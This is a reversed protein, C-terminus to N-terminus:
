CASIIWRSCIAAYRVPRALARRPRGWIGTSPAPGYCIALVACRRGSRTPQPESSPEVHACTPLSEGVRRSDRRSSASSTALQGFNASNSARRRITPPRSEGANSQIVAVHAAHYSSQLSPRSMPMGGAPWATGGVAPRRHARPHGRRRVSEGEKGCAAWGADFSMDNGIMQGSAAFRTRQWLPRGRSRTHDHREGLLGRQRFAVQRVHTSRAGRTARVPRRISASSKRPAKPAVLMYTNTMASRCSACLKRSPTATPEVRM